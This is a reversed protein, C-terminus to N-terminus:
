KYGNGSSTDIQIKRDLTRCLEESLLTITSAGTQFYFGSHEPKYYRNNDNGVKIIITKIELCACLNAIAAEYKQQISLHNRTTPTVFRGPEDDHVFKVKAM